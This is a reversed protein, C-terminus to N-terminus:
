DFKVYLKDKFMNGTLNEICICKNKTSVTILQHKFHDLTEPQHAFHHLQLHCPYHQPVCMSVLASFQPHSWLAPLQLGLSHEMM